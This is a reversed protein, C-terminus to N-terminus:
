DFLDEEDDWFGPQTGAQPFAKNFGREFSEKTKTANGIGVIQWIHARLAVMGVEEELFQFLKYRRGGGVYVTPNKEDLLELIAGRSNLLPSYVYKRIFHGFFQPHKNKYKRPLKYLNYIVDFFQDPFESAWKRHEELIFQKFLERYEEKWKDKIHGTAEDILAVIGVKAASRLIIEAQRALDEQAPTLKKQKKAEWIADCLDILVTGEYGHALDGGFAKFVIPNELAERLKEPIVSGLGKRNVARMFVNGGQSKMALARAMGRKHFVRRRDKLVYCELEIDGIPLLGEKIAVPISGDGGWRAQAGKQAIESRREPTLNQARVLGGKAKGSIIEPEIAITQTEEM